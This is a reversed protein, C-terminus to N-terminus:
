GGGISVLIIIEDGDNLVTYKEAKAKNVLFTASKLLEDDRNEIKKSILKLLQEITTNPPLEIQQLEHSLSAIPIGFYRLKIIM